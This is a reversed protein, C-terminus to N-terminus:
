KSTPPLSMLKLDGCQRFGMKEWFSKSCPYGKTADMYTLEFLMGPYLEKIKEFMLTGYGKGRQNALVQYSSVWVSNDEENVYLNCTALLEDDHDVLVYYQADKGYPSSRRVYYGTGGPKKRLLYSTLPVNKKDQNTFYKRFEEWTVEKFKIM